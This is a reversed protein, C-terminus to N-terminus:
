VLRVIGHGVDSGSVAEKGGWRLGAHYTMIPQNQPLEFNQHPSTQSEGTESSDSYSVYNMKARLVATLPIHQDPNLRQYLSASLGGGDGNFSQDKKGTARTWKWHYNNAYVIGGFAGIGVDTNRGWCVKSVWLESDVYGPAIALRLYENTGIVHPINWYYFLYAGM